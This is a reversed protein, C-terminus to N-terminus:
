KLELNDFSALASWSSGLFASGSQITTDEVAALAAGDVAASVSAGAAAVRLRHAASSNFPAPLAGAALVSTQNLALTWSGDAFVNLCYGRYGNTWPWGPVGRVCALVYTRTDVPTSQSICLGLAPLSLLGTAADFAWRQADSPPAGAGGVASLPAGGVASLPALVVSKNAAIYTLVSGPFAENTVFGDSTLNWRYSESQAGCGEFNCTYFQIYWANCGGTTICAPTGGWLSEFNMALPSDRSLVQAPDKADCPVVYVPGSGEAAVAPAPSFAADVEVAYDAMRPDGIMTLPTSPNPLWANPGADAPVVQVLAGGRVVYAGGQDSLYRAIGGDAYGSFTDLYPLPFAAGSSPPPPHEGHRASAVTSVTVIQDPGVEVGFTGDAGVVVDAEQAFWARETTRWVHLSTGAGVLGGSLAFSLSYNTPARAPAAGCREGMMTEIVVTLGSLDKEPVLTVYSGGVASGGSGTAPLFGSGGGPVTLYRWGPTAFQTTHASVWIPASVTYSGSWPEFAMMLGPGSRQAADGCVLSPYASWVLSWAITATMNALVYNGNLVTAWASAASQWTTETKSYDESAWFTWGAERVEPHPENCPYHLGAGAVAAAFAPDYTPSAAQALAMTASDFSGDMVILKTAGAGIADLASRLALVYSSSSPQPKENWLGLYDVGFGTENMMCSVWAAQYAVNEASYYSGNGVWAPVAWSLGYILVAPNRRKAENVLFLEYGRACELDGRSHMHSLETGDTSQSDGGIEVKLISLAAGFSPLFLYDLVEGRQPEPYDLLLRSSAGASLAGIGDFRHLATAGNLAIPTTSAPPSAAAAVAAALVLCRCGALLRAAAPPAM